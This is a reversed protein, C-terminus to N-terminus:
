QCFIVGKVLEDYRQLTLFDLMKKRYPEIDETNDYIERAWFIAGLAPPAQLLEFQCPIPANASVTAKFSDMMGPYKIKNWISGAMIVTVHSGDFALNRICGCVGEAVNVGTDDLIRRAVDDGGLAAEDIVTIIETMNQILLRNNSITPPLNAPETVKLIELIKPVIASQTGIRYFYNYVASVGTRMIHGGGAYDGSIHGIGGVQLMEGSDDIGVIVTGAGNIACVGSKAMAKVGLIGDNALVFRNFGLRAVRKNLEDIQGPLDAGALGFAGMAIDGVAINNRRFLQDLHSKMAAEMGDYSDKFAEHSCTPCRLIDVFDGNARCLLYDTKSNGGDVGLLYKPKTSM